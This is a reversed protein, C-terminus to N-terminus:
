RASSVIEVQDPNGPLVAPAAAKSEKAAPPPQWLLFALTIQTALVMLVTFLSVLLFAISAELIASDHPVPCILLSTAYRKSM